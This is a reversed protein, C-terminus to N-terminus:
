PSPVLVRLLIRTVKEFKLLVVCFPLSTDLRVQLFARVRRKKSDHLVEPGIKEAKLCIAPCVHPEPYFILEPRHLPFPNEYAVRM